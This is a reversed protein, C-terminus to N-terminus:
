KNLHSFDISPTPFYNWKASEIQSRASLILKESAKISPYHSYAEKLITAIKTKCRGKEGAHTYIDVPAATLLVSSALIYFWVQRYMM